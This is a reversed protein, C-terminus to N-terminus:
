IWMKHKEDQGAEPQTLLFDSRQTRGVLAVARPVAPLAEKLGQPLGIHPYLFHSIVRISHIYIYIHYVDVYTYIYMCVYM